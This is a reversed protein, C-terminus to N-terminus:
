LLATFGFPTFIDCIQYGSPQCSTRLSILLGLYDVSAQFASHISVSSSASGDAIDTGESFM